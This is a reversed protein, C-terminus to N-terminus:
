APDLNTRRKSGSQLLRLLEEEAITAARRVDGVELMRVRRLALLVAPTIDEMGWKDWILDTGNVHLEELANQEELLSWLSTRTGRRWEEWPQPHLDLIIVRATTAGLLDCLTSLHVIHGCHHRHYKNPECYWSWSFTISFEADEYGLASWFFNTGHRPSSGHLRSPGLWIHCSFIQWHAQPM